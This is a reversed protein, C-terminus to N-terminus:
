LLGSSDCREDYRRGAGAGEAARLDTRGKRDDYGAGAQDGKVTAQRTTLVQSCCRAVLEDEAHIGVHLLAVNSLAPKVNGPGSWLRLMFIADHTSGLCTAYPAAM